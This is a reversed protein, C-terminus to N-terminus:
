VARDEIAGPQGIGGEVREIVYRTMGLALEHEGMFVKGAREKRLLETEEETHTRVVTEIGPNLLRATEIMKRAAFTDPIAIVLLSARAVHAQILVAPDAADGAVAHFGRERLREVEERNQETVVFTV